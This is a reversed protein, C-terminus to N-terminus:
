ELPETWLDVQAAVFKKGNPDNIWKRVTDAGVYEPEKTHISPIRFFPSLIPDLYYKTRREGRKKSTHSTAYLDGYSTADDLFRAVDPNSLLDGNEISFGNWGPYSMAKDKTLQVYFHEGLADIFKKRQFANPGEIQKTRWEISAEIVGQSQVESDIPFRIDSSRVNRIDRLWADWIHQMLFLFVLIQGGSLNLADAEGSWNLAQRNESAIQMLAHHAREKYWYPQGSWPRDGDSPPSGLPRVGKRSVSKQRVWACAMWGELLDNAGLEVIYTKWEETIDPPLSNVARRILGNRGAPTSVYLNAAESPPLSQGLAVSITLESASKKRGYESVKLRREFIDRAFKPFIWTRSNERRRFIEEMVVMDFDRKLELVDETRYIRPPVPWGNSRTGIRYSVRGDRASLAKHILEQCGAGYQTGVVNLTALQEFQDIRVFVKTDDEIVGCSKLSEVCKMIPDGIVTKSDRIEAPLELSNLNLFRRYESIRQTIRQELDQISAVGVLAGFWCDDASLAAAFRDLRALDPNLGISTLLQKNNCASFKKVTAILDMVVWYNVFDAFLLQLNQVTRVDAGQELHQAFELAGCKRLNIGAGIFKASAAPVPFDIKARLYALRADPRLLNLLMTKGTGQLGRIVVNGPEFILRAHEVIIPSFLDVLADETIAESLYLDHFPNTAM